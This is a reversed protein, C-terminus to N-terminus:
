HLNSPWKAACLTHTGATRVAAGTPRSTAAGVTAQSLHGCRLLGLTQQHRNHLVM